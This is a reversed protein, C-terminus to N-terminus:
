DVDKEEMWEIEDEPYGKERMQRSWARLSPKCPFKWGGDRWRPACGLFCADCNSPRRTAPRPSTAVIM